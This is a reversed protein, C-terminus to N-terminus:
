LTQRCSIYHLYPPPTPRLLSEQAIIQNGVAAKQINSICEILCRCDTRFLCNSYPTYYFQPAQTSVLNHLSDIPAQPSCSSHSCQFPFPGLYLGPPLLDSHRGQTTTNTPAPRPTERSSRSSTERYTFSSPTAMPWFRLQGPGPVQTDLNKSCM